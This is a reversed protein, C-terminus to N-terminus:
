CKQPDGVPISSEDNKIEPFSLEPLEPKQPAAHRLSRLLLEKM